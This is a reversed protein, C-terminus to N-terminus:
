KQARDWKELFESIVKYTMQRVEQAKREPTYGVYTGSSRALLFSGVVARTVDGASLRHYTVVYIEVGISQFDQGSHLEGKKTGNIWLALKASPDVTLVQSFYTRVVEAAAFRFADAGDIDEVIFSIKLKEASDGITESYVKESFQTGNQFGASLGEHRAKTKESECTERSILNPPKPAAPKQGPALYEPSAVFFVFLLLSATVGRSYM